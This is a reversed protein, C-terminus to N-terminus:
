REDLVEMIKKMDQWVLKKDDLHELLYAPHFTSMAQIGACTFFKGRLDAVPIQKGLLAWAASEGLACVVKPEIIKLLEILYPRCNNIENMKPPHGKKFKCHLFGAIYIDKKELDMAKRIRQFLQRSLIEHKELIAEDFLAEGVFVVSSNLNGEGFVINKKDSFACSKCNEIEKHLKNIKELGKNSKFNFTFGKAFWEEFDIRKRISNTAKALEEAILKPNDM